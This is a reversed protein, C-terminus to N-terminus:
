RGTTVDRYLGCYNQSKYAAEVRSHDVSICVFDFTDLYVTYTVEMRFKISVFNNIQM